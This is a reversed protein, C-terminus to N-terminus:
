QSKLELKFKALNEHGARAGLIYINEGEVITNGLMLKIPIDNNHIATQTSSVTYNILDFDLQNLVTPRGYFLPDAITQNKLRGFNFIRLHKENQLFYYNEHEFELLPEREIKKKEKVNMEADLKILFLDGVATFKNMSNDLFGDTPLGSAGKTSTGTNSNGFDVKIPTEKQILLILENAREEVFIPTFYANFQDNSAYNYVKRLDSLQKGRRELFLEDTDVDFKILQDRKMNAGHIRALGTNNRDSRDLWQYFLDWSGNVHSLMANVYTKDKEREFREIKGGEEDYAALAICDSRKLVNTQPNYEQIREEFLVYLEASVGFEVSKVHLEKLKDDQPRLENDTYILNANQDQVILENKELNCIAVLSDNRKYHVSLDAIEKRTVNQLLRPSTWEQTKFEFDQAYIGMSKKPMSAERAASVFHIFKDTVEIQLLNVMSLNVGIELNYVRELALNRNILVVKFEGRIKVLFFFGAASTKVHQYRPYYEQSQPGTELDNENIFQVEKSLVIDPGFVGKDFQSFATTGSILLIFLIQRM